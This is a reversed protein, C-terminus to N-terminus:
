DNLANRWDLVKPIIWIVVAFAIGTSVDPHKSKNRMTPLVSFARFNM